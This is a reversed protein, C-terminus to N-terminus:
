ERVCFTVDLADFSRRMEAGATVPTGALKTEQNLERVLILTLQVNASQQLYNEAFSEGHSNQFPRTQFSTLTHM